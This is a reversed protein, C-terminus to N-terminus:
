AEPGTEGAGASRSLGESDERSAGAEENLDREKLPQTDYHDESVAEFSEKRTQGADARGQDGGASQEPGAIELVRAWEVRSSKRKGKVRFDVGTEDLTVVYTNGDIDVERSIPKTFKM